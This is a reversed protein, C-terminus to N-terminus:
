EYAIFLETGLGFPIADLDFQILGQSAGILVLKNLRGCTLKSQELLDRVTVVGFERILSLLWEIQTNCKSDGSYRHLLKLNNLRPEKHLQRETLLRLEMGLESCSRQKRKFRHMVEPVSAENSYKIEYYIQRGLTSSVLFDPTYPFSKGYYQYHFGVPQAEFFEISKSFEFHFCANFELTSELTLTARNKISAFKYLNKM